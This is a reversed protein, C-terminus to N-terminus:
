LRVLREDISAAIKLAPNAITETKIPQPSDCPPPTIPPQPTVPVSNGRVIRQFRSDPALDCEEKHFTYFRERRFLAKCYECEFYNQTTTEPPADAIEVGGFEADSCQSSGTPINMTIVKAELDIQLRNPAHYSEDALKYYGTSDM